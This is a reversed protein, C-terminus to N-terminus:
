ICVLFGCLVYICCTCEVCRCTRFHTCSRLMAMEAPPRSAATNVQTLGAPLVWGVAAATRTVPVTSIVIIAPKGEVGQIWRVRRLNVTMDKCGGTGRGERGRKCCASGKSSNSSSLHLRCSGSSLWVPRCAWQTSATTAHM